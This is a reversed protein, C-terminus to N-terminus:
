EMGMEKWEMEDWEWEVEWELKSWKDKFRWLECVFQGIKIHNTAIAQM